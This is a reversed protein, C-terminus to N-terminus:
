RMLHVTGNYYHKKLSQEEAMIMYLYVGDMVPVGRYVGDWNCNECELLLEGWRNYIRMRYRLVGGFVPSFVNNLTDKLQQSPSFANPIYFYYDGYIFIGESTTDACELDNRAILTVTYKGEEPYTHATDRKQSQYTSDGDGFFWTYNTAHNSENYLQVEVGAKQRQPSCMLSALPQEIVTIIKPVFLSDKCGQANMVVLSADYIGSRTYTYSPDQTGSIETNDTFFVSKTPDHNLSTDKFQVKLPACGIEPTFTFGAHLDRTQSVTITISQTDGLAKGSQVLVAKYTSTIRPSVTITYGSDLFSGNANSWYVTYKSANSGPVHAKLHASDGECLMSADASIQLLYFISSLVTPLGLRSASEASLLLFDDEYTAGWNNVNSIRDIYPGDVGEYGNAVYINGDPGMQLAGVRASFDGSPATYLEQRNFSWDYQVVRKFNESTYFYAENTSFEVGYVTGTHYVGLNKSVMGSANDYTFAESESNIARRGLVLYSGSPSIKMFGVRDDNNSICPKAKVASVVPQKNVGSSSLLWSYFQGDGCLTTIWYDNGNAHKAAAIKETSLPCGLLNFNTSILTISGGTVDVESYNVGYQCNIYHQDVTFIYFRAPNGPKPVIIASQTSSANGHLPSSANVVSHSANYISTGDTYLLMEGDQDCLVACGEDTSMGGRIAKPPNSNFDIGAQRGFYWINAAQGSVQLGYLFLFGFILYTFQRKPVRFSM